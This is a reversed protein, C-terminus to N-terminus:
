FVTKLLYQDFTIFLFSIYKTINKYLSCFNHATSAFLGPLSTGRQLIVDFLNSIILDDVLLSQYIAYIFGFRLATCFTQPATELASDSSKSPFM